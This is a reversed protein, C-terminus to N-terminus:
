VTGTLAAVAKKYLNRRELLGESAGNISKSIADILGNDAKGLLKKEEVFLWVAADVAWQDDTRMLEVATNIEENKYQAYRTVIGRGTQQIYSVGRFLWGDGAHINGLKRTADRNVDAYVTNAIAQQDAVQKGSIRGHKKALEPNKKYYSFTRILGPVDYNLNETKTAFGRSEHAEQAVIAAARLPTTINYKSFAENHADALLKAKEVTLGSVIARLHTPTINM